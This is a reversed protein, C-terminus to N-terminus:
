LEWGLRTPQEYLRKLTNVDRASIAPPNRVQSFYLVDTELLSHGWIGLAHGLEHRATAPVYKGVQNPNLYVAFRHSLVTKDGDRRNYLEYTSEGSRSRLLGQRLPPAQRLIRIDAAESSDVVQLPLYVGWERVVGLVAAIWEESKNGEVPREVYVQIPFKSWLLHGVNPQKIRDFYDGSNTADQWNALTPPLPHVRPSPWTNPLPSLSLSAAPANVQTFIILSFCFLALGLGALLRAKISVKFLRM